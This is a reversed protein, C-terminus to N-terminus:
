GIAMTPGFYYWCALKQSLLSRKGILNTNEYQPLTGVLTTKQDQFFASGDMSSIITKFRLLNITAIAASGLGWWSSHWLKDELIILVFQSRFSSVGYWLILAVFGVFFRMKQPGLCHVRMHRHFMDINSTKNKGVAHSSDEKDERPEKHNGRPWLHPEM